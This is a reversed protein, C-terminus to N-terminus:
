RTIVVKEVGGPYMNFWETLLKQSRMREPIDRVLIARAHTNAAHEQLFQIRLEIFALSERHLVYIVVV